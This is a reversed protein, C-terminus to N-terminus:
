GEYSYVEGPGAAQLVLCCRFPLDIEKELELRDFWVEYSFEFVM